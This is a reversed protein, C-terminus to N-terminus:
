IDPARRVMLARSTPGSPRRRVRGPVRVATRVHRASWPHRPVRTHADRQAPRGGGSSCRSRSRLWPRWGRIRGSSPGPVEAPLALPPLALFGRMPSRGSLGNIGLVIVWWGYTVAKETEGEESVLFIVARLAGLGAMSEDDSAQRTHGRQPPSVQISQSREVRDM